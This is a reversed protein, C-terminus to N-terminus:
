FHFTKECSSSYAGLINWIENSYSYFRWNELILTLKLDSGNRLDL